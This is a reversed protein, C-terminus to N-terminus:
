YHYGMHLNLKVFVKHILKIVIWESSYLVYSICTVILALGLQNCCAPRREILGLVTPRCERHQSFKVRPVRGSFIVIDSKTECETKGLWVCFILGWKESPARILPRRHHANQDTEVLHSLFGMKKEMSKARILISRSVGVKLNTGFM